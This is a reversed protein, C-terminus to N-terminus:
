TGWAERWRQRLRQWYPPEAPEPPEAPLPAVYDERKPPEPKPLQILETKSLKPRTGAFTYRRHERELEGTQVLLSFGALPGVTQPAVEIPYYGKLDRQLYTVDYRDRPSNWVLVRVTDFEYTQNRSAATAMLWHEHKEGDDEVAGLPVAAVVVAGNAQQTVADPIRFFLLRSLVWGAHNAIEGGAGDQGRVRVLHWDDVPAGEPVRAPDYGAAYLPDHDVRPTVLHGVVEVPEEEAAVYFSPASRNPDTHVNLSDFPAAVGQVPMADAQRSLRQLKAWQQDSLLEASDVWGSQGSDLRVRAFRRRREAIEVRDGHLAIGSVKAQLGLQERLELKAPAVYLREASPSGAPNCSLIAAAM